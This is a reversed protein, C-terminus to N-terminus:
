AVRIHLSRALKVWTGDPQTYGLEALYDKNAVPITLHRDRDTLNCDFVQTSHAPAYDLDINTVEHLRLSLSEVDQARLESEVSQPIEWYAYASEADREVLVIQVGQATKPATPRKPM